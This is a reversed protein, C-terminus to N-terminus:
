ASAFPRLLVALRSRARARRSKVTGEAVGLMRAADAVTYGHMDVALLVARQGAPLRALAQRVMLTTEIRDTDDDVPDGDGFPAAIPRIANRRLQDTCANILIRHLWSSVAADSRFNTAARHASLMADQLADDADERTHSRLRALRHLWRRHRVFLEGFAARDGDVHAALLAADTRADPQSSPVM